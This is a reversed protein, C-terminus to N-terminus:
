RFRFAESHPWIPRRMGAQHRTLADILAAPGCVWAQHRGAPDEPILQDPTPRGNRRTDHCHLTVNVLQAALESLRGAIPDRDIDPALYHLTTVPLPQAGPRAAADLWAMFPTAGVGAAIWHQQSRRDIGDLCFRGHPGEIIVPAGPELLPPVCRTYDGLAKIVFRLRGNGQDACAITFPHAGEDRHTILRAFQGSRHGPWRELACDIETLGPGLNRRAVIRGQYRRRQGPNAVLLWLAALSGALLWFALWGGAPTPWLAPPLLLAGHFVMGLYLAPMARHLWRWLTYPVRTILALAVAALLVYILIEGAEGAVDRLAGTVGDLVPAVQERAVSLRHEWDHEDALAWHAALVPLSALACYRHAQYVRDLGGFLAEVPALRLALLMAASILVLTGLGTAWGAMARVTPVDASALVLAASVTVLVIVCLSAPTILGRVLLRLMVPWPRSDTM